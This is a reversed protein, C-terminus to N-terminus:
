SKEKELELNRKKLEQELLQIFDTDADLELAKNYTEILLEDTMNKM